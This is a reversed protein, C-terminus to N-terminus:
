SVGHIKLGRKHERLHEARWLGAQVKCAASVTPLCSLLCPCRDECTRTEAQSTEKMTVAAHPLTCTLPFCQLISLSLWFWWISVICGFVPVWFGAVCDVRFDVSIWKKTHFRIIIYFFFSSSFLNHFKFYVKESQLSLFEGQISAMQLWKNFSSTLRIHIQKHIPM